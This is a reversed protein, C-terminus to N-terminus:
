LCGVGTDPDIKCADGQMEREVTLQRGLAELFGRIEAKERYVKRGERLMPIGGKQEGPGLIHVRHAVVLEKLKDAVEDCFASRKIRYFEIM